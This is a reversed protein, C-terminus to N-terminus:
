IPLRTQIALMDSTLGELQKALQAYKGPYIKIARELEKIIFECLHQWWLNKSWSALTFAEVSYVGILARDEHKENERDLDQQCSVKVEIRDEDLIEYYCVGPISHCIKSELESALRLLIALLTIQEAQIKKRVESYKGIVSELKHAADKELNATGLRALIEDAQRLLSEASSILEFLNVM